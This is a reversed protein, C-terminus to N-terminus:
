FIEKFFMKKNLLITPPVSAPTPLQGHATITPLCFSGVKWTLKFSKKPM